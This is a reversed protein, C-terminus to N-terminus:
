RAAPSAPGEGQALLRRAEDDSLSEIEVLLRTLEDGGSQAGGLEYGLQRALNRSADGLIDASLHERWREASAPDVRNHRHFKVDGLMVSEPSVGDLMRNEPHAYPDAMEPRFEFGFHSCLDAMVRDPQAVMEEFRIKYQREPPIEALFELINRHCATWILEALQRPTFSHEYRYFFHLKIEEYSNIMGCPHRLLHIYLPNEFDDEVRRITNVDLAYYTSKEVLTRPAIWEQVLGYFEKVTMDREELEAMIRKAEDAPCRKIEMIARITGELWYSDRGTFAGRRERLTNFSLLEFEPPSFLRPSGALLVRLLTSGSRPPTLVFVARANKREGAGRALPKFVPIAARFRAMEADGIKKEDTSTGNSSPMAMGAATLRAASNPYHRYLYEIQQAITPADFIAILYFYEGLKSQIRNSLYLAKISHGGLDFFNDYIGVREIGLVEKWMDALAKELPTQPEVYEQGLEPRSPDPAPLAARDLKGNANLPMAQMEVFASPIMYDPLFTKLHERLITVAPKAARRASDRFIRRYFPSARFVHRDHFSAHAFNRANGDAHIIKGEIKYEPNVGNPSMACSMELEIYDGARVEIPPDFVPFYVPLWGNQNELYSVRGGGPTELETWLLFGDLLGDSSVKLTARNQYEAPNGRAFDLEEFIARESLLNEIPFNRVCLRLDLEHGLHDFVRQVYKASVGTFGPQARFSEPLCAGAIRTVCRSPICVANEKLYRRADNMVRVVGDASGINGFIREIAVDAKEPLNVKVSDGQIVEIKDTLGLNRVLARASEAADPLLEIAYVKKAGAEAALRAFIAEGGTGIDVVITDRVSNRIADRYAQSTKEETSMIHYLLEDYLQYQGVSPWLEMEGSEATRRIRAWGEAAPVYYAALRPEGSADTGLVVAAEDVGEHETLVAEIEGLEVRYGRIKVQHDVRGLFEIDGGALRRV